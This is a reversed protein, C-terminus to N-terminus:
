RGPQYNSQIQKHIENLYGMLNKIAPMQGRENFERIIRLRNRYEMPLAGASEPLSFYRLMYGLNLQGALFDLQDLQYEIAEPEEALIAQTLEGRVDGMRIVTLQPKDYIVMGFGYGGIVALILGITVVAPVPLHKEDAPVDSEDVASSKRFLNEICGNLGGVSRCKVRDVFASVIFLLLLIILATTQAANAEQLLSRMMSPIDKLTDAGSPLRTFSDFAHTHDRASISHQWPLFEMLTSFTFTMVFFLIVLGLASRIGYDRRVWNVVGANAGAGLIVLMFSAGLSYGDRVVHEFQTMIEMPTIYVPLAFLGMVLPSLVSGRIFLAQLIGFPLVAGLLGMLFVVLLLDGVVGGTSSRLINWGTLRLRDASHRIAPDIASVKSHASSRFLTDWGWGLSVSIIFSGALFSAFTPLNIHSLGYVVSIPNMVPAVITFSLVTGTSLGARRLERAVPLAGLACVPLAIGFAWARVAGLFGGGGLFRVLQRHGVMGRLLGALLIGSLLFPASELLTQALRFIGSLLISELSGAFGSFHPGFM